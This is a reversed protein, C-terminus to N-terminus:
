SIKKKLKEEDDKFLKLIREAAETGEMQPMQLDMFIIKYTKNKCYCTKKLTDSVLEIAM